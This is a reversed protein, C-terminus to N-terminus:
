MSLIADIIANLDAINIEGDMNVDGVLSDTVGSLIMSAEMNVDAINIEGDLNVDFVDGLRGKLTFTIPEIPNGHLDKGQTTLTLQATHSGQEPPFYVIELAYGEEGNLEDPQITFIETQFNWADEGTINVVVKETLYTGYLMITKFSASDM